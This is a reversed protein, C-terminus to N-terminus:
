DDSGHSDSQQQTAELDSASGTDHVLVSHGRYRLAVLPSALRPESMAAEFAAARPHGSPNYMYPLFEDIVVLAQRFSPVAALLRRAGQQSIVLGPTGYSFVLRSFFATPQLSSGGDGIVEKDGLWVGTDLYIVDWEFGTRDLEELAAAFTRWRESSAVAYDDELIAMAPAGSRAIEEWARVHSVTCGIEGRTVPRTGYRVNHWWPVHSRAMIGPVIFLQPDDSRLAWTPMARWGEAELDLAVGDCAVLYEFNVGSCAMQADIFERRDTRRALNIVLVPLQTNGTSVLCCCGPIPRTDRELATHICYDQVANDVESWVGEDMELGGLQEQFHEALAERLLEARALPDCSPAMINHRKLGCELGRLFGFPEENGTCLWESPDPFSEPKPEPMTM